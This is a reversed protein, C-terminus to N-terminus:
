AKMEKLRKLDNWVDNVSREAIVHPDFADVEERALCKGARRDLEWNTFVTILEAKTVTLEEEM